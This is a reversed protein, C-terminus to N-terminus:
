CTSVQVLLAKNALLAEATIGKANLLDEFADNTPALITWATSSDSLPGAVGAANVAALLTSM